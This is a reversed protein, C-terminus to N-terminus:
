SSDYNFRPVINDWHELKCQEFNVYYDFIDGEQPMFPFLVTMKQKTLESFRNRGQYNQLNYYNGGIGWTYCFILMLNFYHDLELIAIQEM